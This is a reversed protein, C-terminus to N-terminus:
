KSITGTFSIPSRSSMVVNLDADGNDYFIFSLTQVDINDKPHITYRIRGKKLLKKEITFDSSTFDLPSRGSYVDIGGYARGYYPLYVVLKKEKYSVGYNGGSIFKTTGFQPLMKDASFEWLLTDKVSAFAGTSLAFFASFFILKINITKM